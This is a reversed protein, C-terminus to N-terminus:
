QKFLKELLRDKSKLAQRLKKQLERDEKKQKKRKKTCYTCFHMYKQKLNRGCGKCVRKKSVRSGKQKRQIVLRASSDKAM